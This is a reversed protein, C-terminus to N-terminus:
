TAGILSRAGLGALEDVASVALSVMPQLDILVTVYSPATGSVDYNVRVRVPNPSPQYTNSVPAPRPIYVPIKMEANDNTPGLVQFKGAMYYNVGQDVSFMIRIDITTSGGSMAGGLYHAWCLFGGEVEVYDTNGDAVVTNAQDLILNTDIAM